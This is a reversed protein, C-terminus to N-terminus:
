RTWAQQEVQKKVQEGMIKLGVWWVRATEKGIGVSFDKLTPTKSFLTVGL